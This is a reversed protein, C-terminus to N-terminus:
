PQCSLRRQFNQLRVKRDSERHCDPAPESLIIKHQVFKQGGGPQNKEGGAQRRLGIKEDGGVTV